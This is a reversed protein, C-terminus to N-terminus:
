KIGKKGAGPPPSLGATVGPGGAFEQLHEGLSCSLIDIDPAPSSPSTKISGDSGAESALILGSRRGRLMPLPAAQLTKM